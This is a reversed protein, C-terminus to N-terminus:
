QDLIKAGQLAHIAKITVIPSKLVTLFVVVKLLVEGKM